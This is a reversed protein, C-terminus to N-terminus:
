YQQRDGSRARHQSRSCGPLSTAAPEWLLCACGSQCRVGLILTPGDHPPPITLVNLVTIKTWWYNNQQQPLRVCIGAGAPARRWTLFHCLTDFPAYHFLTPIPILTFYSPLACKSM